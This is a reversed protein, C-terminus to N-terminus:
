LPVGRFTCGQIASVEKYRVTGILIDNRTYMLFGQISQIASVGRVRLGSLAYNGQVYFM